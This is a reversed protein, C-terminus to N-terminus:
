ADQRVIDTILVSQVEPGIENHVAELLAHSLTDLSPSTTFSGDFGGGYAHDFLVRLFVDRIKPEKEYLMESFETSTELTISLVVLAAVADNKVIPIVFQNNLKVYAVDEDPIEEEAEEESTETEGETAEDEIVEPVPRLFFGAGAGGGIFIVLILLPLILKM